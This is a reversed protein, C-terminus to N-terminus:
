AVTDLLKGIGSEKNGYVSTQGDQLPNPDNATNAFGEVPGLLKDMKEANIADPSFNIENKDESVPQVPKLQSIEVVDQTDFEGARDTQIGASLIDKHRNGTKHVQSQSDNINSIENIM